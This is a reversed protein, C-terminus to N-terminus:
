KTNIICSLFLFLLFLLFSLIENQLLCTSNVWRFVRVSGRNFGGADDRLTVYAVTGGDSSMFVGTLVDDSQATTFTNGVQTWTSGYTTALASTPPTLVFASNVSKTLNPFNSLAM